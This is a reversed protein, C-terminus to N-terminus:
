PALKQAIWRAGRGFYIGAIWALAPASFPVITRLGAFFIADLAGLLVVPVTTTLTGSARFRMGLLFGLLSMVLVLATEWVPDLLKLYRGDVMQAVAQAHIMVGPMTGDGLKALPTPHRDTHDSLDGGILVIRDKLQGLLMQALKRETDDAPAVLQAAPLVLFTDSGDRPTKLWAIRPAHAETRFGAKRAIAAAFSEPVAQGPASSPAPEAEGRIVSDIEYRLNLYGTSAGSRTVFRHLYDRREARLPVREDVTGLVVRDAMRRIAASLRDDKEPETSQDFLFDLGVIRAGAADIKEVLSAILGRDVPSRYAYGEISDDDILVVAIRSHQTDARDALLATRWDATWHEMSRLLATHHSTWSFAATILGTSVSAMLLLM